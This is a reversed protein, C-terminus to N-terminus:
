ALAWGVGVVAAAVSSSCAGAFAMRKKETAELSGMSSCIIRQLRTAPDILCFIVRAPKEIRRRSPEEKNKKKILQVRSSTLMFLLM